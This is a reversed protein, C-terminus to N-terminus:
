FVDYDLRIFLSRSAEADRTRYRIEGDASLSLQASLQVLLSGWLRHQDVQEEPDSWGHNRSFAYGLRLRWEDGLRRLYSASLDLGYRDSGGLGFVLRATARGQSVPDPVIAYNGSLVIVESVAFGGSTRLSGGARVQADWGCLRADGTATLVREMGLVGEAGLADDRVLGTRVLIGELALIRDANALAPDGITHAVEQLVDDTVPALLIGADILANQVRIALALPTVDRFRGAGLGATVDLTWDLIGTSRLDAVGITFADGEIYWKVDGTVAADLAFAGPTWAADVAGDIRYGFLASQHFRVYDATATSHFLGGGADAGDYWQLSGQLSLASFASREPTYDCPSLVAAVATTWVGLIAVATGAARAWERRSM